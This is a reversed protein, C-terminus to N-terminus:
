AFRIDLRAFGRSEFKQAIGKKFPNGCDLCRLHELGPCGLLAEINKIKKSNLLSLERLRPLETFIECVLLVAELRPLVITDKWSVPRRSLDQILDLYRLDRVLTLSRLSGPLEADQLNRLFSLDLVLNELHVLRSVFSPLRAKKLQQKTPVLHLLKISAITRPDLEADWDIVQYGDAALEACENKGGACFRLENPQQFYTQRRQTLHNM